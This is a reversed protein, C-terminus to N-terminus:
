VRARIMGSRASASIVQGGGRAIAAAQLGGRIDVLIGRGPADDVGDVSATGRSQASNQLASALPSGLKRQLATRAEKAQLIEAMQQLAAPDIDTTQAQASPAAFWLLAAGFVAHIPSRM